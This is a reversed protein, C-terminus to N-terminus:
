EQEDIYISKTLAWEIEIGFDTEKLFIGGTSASEYGEKEMDYILDYITDEIDKATPINGQWEWHFIEYLVALEKSFKKIKQERNM